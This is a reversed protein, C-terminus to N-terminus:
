VLPPRCSPYKLELLVPRRDAGRPPEAPPVKEERVPVWAKADGRGREVDQDGPREENIEAPEVAESCHQLGKPRQYELTWRDDEQSGDKKACEDEERVSVARGVPPDGPQEMTRGVKERDDKESPSRRQQSPSDQGQREPTRPPEEDR